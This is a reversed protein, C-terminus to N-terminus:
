DVQDRDPCQRQAPPQRHLVPPEGAVQTVASRRPRPAARRIRACAELAQQLAHEVGSLDHRDLAHRGRALYAALLRTEGHPAAPTAGGHLRTLAGSRALATLDRQTTALSAGTVQRIDTTTVFERQALLEIIRQHRM